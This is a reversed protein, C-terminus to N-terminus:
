FGHDHQAPLAQLPCVGVWVTRQCGRHCLCLLLMWVLRAEAQSVVHLINHMVYVIVHKPLMFVNVVMDCHCQRLYDSESTHHWSRPSAATCLAAQGASSGEDDAPSGRLALGCMLTRCV